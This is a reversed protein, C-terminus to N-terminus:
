RVAQVKLTDLFAAHLGNDTGCLLETIGLLTDACLHCSTSKIWPVFSNKRNEAIFSKKLNQMM